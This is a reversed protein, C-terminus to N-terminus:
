NVSNPINYRIYVINQCYHLSSFFIKLFIILFISFMDVTSYHLFIWMYTFGHLELGHQEFTLLIIYVYLWFPCGPMCPVITLFLFM